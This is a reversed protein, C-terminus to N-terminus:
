PETLQVRVARARQAADQLVVLRPDRVDLLPGRPLAAVDPLADLVAAVLLRDGGPVVVDPTRPARGLVSRVADAAARELQAAQGSRRRAFRQQSWGGAATRGQVYRTGVRHDLLRGDRALGAGYGGRRVLVLLALRPQLSHRALGAVTREAPDLPPWPVELVASAGDRADLRVADPTADCRVDGHRDAFGTVWRELREPAVELLRHGSLRQLRARAAAGPRGRHDQRPGM